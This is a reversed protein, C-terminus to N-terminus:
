GLGEFLSAEPRRVPVDSRILGFTEDPFTWRATIRMLRWFASGGIQSRHAKLARWKLPLYPRIDVRASIEEEASGFLEERFGPRNMPTKQGLLRLLRWARLLRKRSFATHYVKPVRWPAQDPAPREAEELAAMAARHAMVHDPHGYGGKADYTVLVHPRHERIIRALRGAPGEIPQRAFSAPDANSAWGAMGSDRYGLPYLGGVGLIRAAERLEELRIEGLRARDEPRERPRLRSLRRGLVEGWEGNTCTVLVTRHGEAAARLLLGGTSSAEDDPHAHVALLTFPAGSGAGPAM